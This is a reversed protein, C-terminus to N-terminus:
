SGVEGNRSAFVGGRLARSIPDGFHRDVADLAAPYSTGAHRFTFGFRRQLDRQLDDDGEYPAVAHIIDFGIDPHKLGLCALRAVDEPAIWGGPEANERAPVVHGLRLCCVRLGHKAAFLAGAQEAFLKVLAYRSDPRPPSGATLPEDRRYFGLVHASSALVVRPVGHRVAAELVHTVGRADVDLLRDFDVDKAIGGLHIIGSCGAVADSVERANRLDARVFTESTGLPEVSRIDSLRLPVGAAVLHPRIALAVIGAAGTVLVPGTGNGPPAAQRRLLRRLANM